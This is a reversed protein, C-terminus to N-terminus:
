RRALRRRARRVVRRMQPLADREWAGSAPTMPLRRWVGERTDSESSYGISRKSCKRSIHPPHEALMLCRFNSIFAAVLSPVGCGTRSRWAPDFLLRIWSSDKAKECDKAGVHSLSGSHGNSMRLKFANWTPNPVRSGRVSIRECDRSVISISESGSLTATIICSTLLTCM